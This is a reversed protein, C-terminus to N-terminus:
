TTKESVHALPPLLKRAVTVGLIYINLIYQGNLSQAAQPAVPGVIMLLFLSVKYKLCKTYLTDLFISHFDLLSDHM